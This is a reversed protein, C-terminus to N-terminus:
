LRPTYRLQKASVIGSIAYPCIYLFSFFFFFTYNSEQDLCLITLGRSAIKM